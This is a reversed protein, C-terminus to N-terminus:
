NIQKWQHNSTLPLTLWGRMGSLQGRSMVSPASQSVSVMAGSWFVVARNSSCIPCGTLLPLVPTTSRRAKSLYFPSWVLMKTVTRILGWIIRFSKGSGLLRSCSVPTVPSFLRIVLTSRLLQLVCVGWSLLVVSMNSKKIPQLLFINKKKKSHGEINEPYKM